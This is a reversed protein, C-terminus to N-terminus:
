IGFLTKANETTQAAIHSVSQERLRSLFDATHTIHAPENVSGRLPMPALFPCDTELLLRDDPILRAAELQMPIKTFTMIGNLAVYLGRTLAEDADTPTGTFCHVVGRTGPYDDLIRFFDGFADRTHFSMPLGLRNALEIQHRFALEQIGPEVTCRFYDLGCEGIAVVRPHTALQDLAQWESPGRGAEHPHLGVTAWVQPYLEAQAIAAQSDAADCGVTIISDVGAAVSRAVVAAAQEVLGPHHLHAHTDTYV